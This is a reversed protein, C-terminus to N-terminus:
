CEWKSDKVCNVFKNYMDNVTAVKQKIVDYQEDWKVAEADKNAQASQALAQEEAKVAVQATHQKEAADQELVNQLDSAEKAEAAAADAKNKLETKENEAKELDGQATTQDALAASAAEGKAHQEAEAGALQKDAADKADSKEAQLATSMQVDQAATKAETEMQALSSESDAVLKEKAQEQADLEATAEVAADTKAEAEGKTAEVNALATAKETEDTKSDYEDQASQAANEAVKKADLADQEKTSLEAIKEEMAKRQEEFGAKADELAKQAGENQKKAQELAAAADAAEQDTSRANEKSLQVEEEAQAKDISAKEAEAEAANAKANEADIGNAVKVYDAMAEGQKEIAASATDAAAKASEKKQDAIQQAHERTATADADAPLTYANPSNTCQRVGDVFIRKTESQDWKGKATEASAILAETEEPAAMRNTEAKDYDQYLAQRDRWAELGQKCCATKEEFDDKTHCSLAENPLGTVESVSLLVHQTDDMSVPMSHAVLVLSLLLAGARFEMASWDKKGTSQTSVQRKYVDSAASSSSLTSRPPRRIM